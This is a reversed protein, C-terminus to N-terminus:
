SIARKRNITILGAVLAMGILGFVLIYLSVWALSRKIQDPENGIVAFVNLQESKNAVIIKYTGSTQLDFVGEYSDQTITKSEIKNDFSDVISVSIIQGKYDIMQVAFIGKQSKTSDLDVELILDNNVSVEGSTQALGEFLVYNGYFSLIIGIGILSGTVVLAIKSKKL